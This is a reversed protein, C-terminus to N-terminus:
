PTTNLIFLYKVNIYKGSANWGGEVQYAATAAGFKFGAPINAYGDVFYLLVTELLILANIIGGM